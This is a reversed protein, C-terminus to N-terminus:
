KVFFDFAFTIEAPRKSAPEAEVPSSTPLVPLLTVELRITDDKRLRYPFVVYGSVVEQVEISRSTLLRSLFKAREAREYAEQDYWPDYYYPYGYDYYYPYYDYGHGYGHGHGGYSVAIAFRVPERDDMASQFSEIMQVPSDPLRRYGEPDILVVRSVDLVVPWAGGNTIELYVGAPEGHDAWPVDTGRAFVSVGNREAVAAKDEDILVIGAGPLARLEPACGWLLSLGACCFAKQLAWRDM